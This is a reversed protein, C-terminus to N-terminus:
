GFSPREHLVLQGGESTTLEPETPVPIDKERLNSLLTELNGDQTLSVPIQVERREETTTVIINVMEEGM